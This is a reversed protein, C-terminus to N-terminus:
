FWQILKKGNINKHVNDIDIFCNSAVFNLNPPIKHILENQRATAAPHCVNIVNQNKWNYLQQAQQGCLLVPLATFTGDLIEALKVSFDWWFAHTNPKDFFSVTWYVNFMLVGQKVWSELSWDFPTDEHYGVTIDGYQLAVADAIISLSPSAQFGDTLNNGFPIGTAKGNNYPALGVIITNVNEPEILTFVKFIDRLHPTFKPNAKLQQKCIEWQESNFLPQLINGWGTERLWKM